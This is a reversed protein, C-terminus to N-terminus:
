KCSTASADRPRSLINTYIYKSTSLEIVYTYNYVRYVRRKILRNGVTLEAVPKSEGVTRTEAVTRPDALSADLRDSM